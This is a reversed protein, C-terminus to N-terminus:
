PDWDLIVLYLPPSVTLVPYDCAGADIGCRGEPKVFCPRLGCWACLACPLQRVVVM